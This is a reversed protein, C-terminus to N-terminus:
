KYTSRECQDHTEGQVTLCTQSITIGIFFSKKIAHYLNRSAVFTSHGYTDPNQIISVESPNQLVDSPLGSFYPPTKLLCHDLIEKDCDRRMPM